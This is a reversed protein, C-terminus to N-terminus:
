DTVTFDSEATASGQLRVTVRLRGTEAGPPIVVELETDSARRLEAQRGGLRVDILGRRTGFNTGRITVATGPAGSAPEFSAITPPHTIVFPRRTRDEGANAVAVVLPGSAAGAPIRVSLETPSAEVVEAREGSLTVANNAATESFGRGTITVLAGAGGSTPTFSAVSVPELVTFPEDTTAPGLGYATIAIPGSAAGEPIEVVVRDDALDRVELAREGITARVQRVDTGFHEGTLTVRTGPMGSAPAVTAITPPFRVVFEGTSHARGGGRVDVLLRATEARRRPLEVELETESARRVRARTEGLYVRNHSARPSFGTGRITIRTGPPGIAPEFSAITTGAEITFPEGSTVEGAGTVRVRFPASAAEVPILVTLETPTAHRVVVPHEGLFVQNETLRPSFHEGRIAVESGPAGSEPEFGGIVPAPPPETVRFRPGRVNGRATRVEITGSSAGTPITVTWRSPLRRTVELQSDGLWVTQQPDFHRGLLSVSTGPPGSTPQLRQVVPLPREVQAAAPASLALALASCAALTLITRM